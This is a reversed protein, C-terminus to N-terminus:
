LKHFSKSVLRAMRRLEEEVIRRTDKTVFKHLPKDDKGFAIQAKWNDPVFNVSANFIFGIVDDNYTVIWAKYKKGFKALRRAVWGAGDDVPDVVADINSLHSHWGGIIDGSLFDDM